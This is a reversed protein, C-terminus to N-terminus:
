RASIPARAAWRDRDDKGGEDFLYVRKAMTDRYMRDLVLSWPTESPQRLTSSPGGSTCPRGAACDSLMTM